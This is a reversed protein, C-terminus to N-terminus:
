IFEVICYKVIRKCHFDKSELQFVAPNEIPEPTKGLDCVYGNGLTNLKSKLLKILDPVPWQQVWCMTSGLVLPM